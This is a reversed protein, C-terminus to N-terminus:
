AANATMGEVRMSFRSLQVSRAACLSRIADIREAPIDNSAIIVAGVGLDGILRPLDSAAGYVPLGDLYAGALRPNDDVFGIPHLGLPANGLIERVAASGARGAGYILAPARGAPEALYLDELVRFSVRAGVVLTALFYFNLLATPVDQRTALGFVWRGGWVALTALTVARILRLIDSMGPHRYDGRYMGGLSFVGPTVILAVPATRLLLTRQTQWGGADACLWHAAYYALGVFGLDALVPLLFRNGSRDLLPLLLGRGLVRTEPYGLRRLAIFAALAVSGVTLVLPTRTLLLSAFGLVGLAACISYLILVASRHSLGYDLMKHHIHERDATFLTARGTWFFEYGAEEASRRTVHLNRLARRVIALITDMLPLGLALFPVMLAVTASGKQGGAIAIVSLTFGLFLSGSDGLFISAPHFNFRLFAATSGVLASCVLAIDPRDLMATSAFLAASAILAVGTALGDLGDVLNIANTVGIVWALTFPVALYGLPVTGIFPIGVDHVIYGALVVIAGVVVQCALKVIAPVPRIDDVAGIATVLLAAGVLATWAPWARVLLNATVPDVLAALAPGLLTGACIGLGGLRPMPKENMRRPEPQDVAQLRLALRRVWPTGFWVAAFATFFAVLHKLM